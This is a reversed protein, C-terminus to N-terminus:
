NLKELIKYVESLKDEYFQSSNISSKYIPKNAQNISLTKIPNNNKHHNLCKDNWELGCFQILNKIKPEKNNVLDEYECNYIQNDFIKNWFKMLDHYILYYEGMENQDYLWKENIM